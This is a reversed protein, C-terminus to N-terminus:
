HRGCGGVLFHFTSRPGSFRIPSWFFHSFTLFSARAGMEYPLWARWWPWREGKVARTRGVRILWNSMGVTMWESVGRDMMRETMRTSMRTSMGTSM